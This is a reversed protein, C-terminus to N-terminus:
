TSPVCTYVDGNTQIKTDEYPAVVRRQFEVKAGDLAGVIDNITQYSLGHTKVYQNVVMSLIFNLEGANQPLVDGESAMRSRQAQTIYPM